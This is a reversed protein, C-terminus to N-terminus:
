GATAEAPASTAPAVPAGEEAQVAVVTPEAGARAAPRAPAAPEQGLGMARMVLGVIVGLAVIGCSAAVGLLEARVTFLGGVCFGIIIIVVGTWAAPSNGHHYNGAM